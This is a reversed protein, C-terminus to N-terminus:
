GNITTRRDFWRLDWHKVMRSASFRMSMGLNKVSGWKITAMLTCYLGLLLHNSYLWWGGGAKSAYLWMFSWLGPCIITFDGIMGMILYEHCRELACTEVGWAAAHAPGWEAGRFKPNQDNCMPFYRGAWCFYVRGHGQFQRTKPSNPFHCGNFLNSKVHCHNLWHIM